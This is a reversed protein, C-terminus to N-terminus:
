RSADPPTVWANIHDDRLLSLALAEAEPQTEALIRVRYLTRNGVQTPTTLVPRHYRESFRLAL